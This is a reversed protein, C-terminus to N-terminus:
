RELQSRIKAAWQDVVDKPNLTRESTKGSPDGVLGTGTGVVAIPHHGALQFRRLLMIQLLNGIHLSDATPDFGIYLTIPESNLRANLAERDTVQYLLGRYELDDLLNM